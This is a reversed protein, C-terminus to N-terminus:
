LSAIMNLCKLDLYTDTKQCKQTIRNFFTFSPCSECQLSIPNVFPKNDPCKVCSNKSGDYFPTEVPCEICSQKNLFTGIPCMNNCVGNFNVKGSLCSTKCVGNELLSDSCSTCVNFSSCTQCSSHCM